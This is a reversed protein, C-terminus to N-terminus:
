QEVTMPLFLNASDSEESTLGHKDVSIVSYEYERGTEVEKDTYVTNTINDLFKEGNKVLIYSQARDDQPYWQLYISQEDMKILGIKPPQPKPLTSGKVVASDLSELKDKDVTTVKYEYSKGDKDIHDNFRNKDTKAHYSWFINKRYVKYHMFDDMNVPDWKVTIKRPLDNTASIKEVRPPLPKTKATVEKSPESLLGNYLKVRVRYHFISNDPLDHDIYEASLRNPVEAVEEWKSGPTKKEIVYGQTGRFSHPRWIIKARRPLTQVSHIYSVPPIMQMTQVQHTQGPESRPGDKKYTAFRYYYKTNPELSEDVYHNSYKDDIREIERLKGEDASPNSRYIIYGDIGPDKVTQWEFAVTRIDEIIKVDQVRPMDPDIEQKQPQKLSCGSIVFILVVSLLIGTLNKM